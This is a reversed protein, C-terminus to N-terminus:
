FANASQSALHGPFSIELRRTLTAECLLEVHHDDVRGDPNVIEL